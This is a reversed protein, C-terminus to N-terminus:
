AVWPLATVRYEHSISRAAHGDILELRMAPGPRVGVGAENAIAGLTGCFM